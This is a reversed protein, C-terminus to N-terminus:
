VSPASQGEIALAQMWRKLSRLRDAESLEITALYERGAKSFLNKTDANYHSLVRRLKNKVSTRRGVVYQRHRVLMRHQRVYM